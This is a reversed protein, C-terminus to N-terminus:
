KKRLEQLEAYQLRATTLLSSATRCLTLVQEADYPHGGNKLISASLRAREIKLRLDKESRVLDTM